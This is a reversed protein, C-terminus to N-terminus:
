GIRDGLEVTVPDRGVVSFAIVHVSAATNEEVM